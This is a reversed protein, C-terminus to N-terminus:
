MYSFAQFLWPLSAAAEDNVLTLAGLIYYSGLCKNDRDIGSTVFQELIDLTIKRIEDINEIIQLQTFHVRGFPNGLPPCIARKIEPSLPARYNWIDVLERLFKIIKNRNLSMFWNSNSYNGLSDINQFLTLTRLEISKKDSIEKNIDSIETCIPIKLVRSLRLLNRLEEIIKATIPQHNYPNKVVGDCKYILNHLSLLDCGYIFGQEDKFSFFQENPIDKLEEMTFFDSTNNCIKRSKFAPGHFINYKRRLHGRIIKQIKIISNSLYLFLYIRSILQSKNGTIKLKYSKAMMKLQDRNYNYKFMNDYEYFKLIYFFEEEIKENKEIKKGFIYKKMIKESIINLYDVDSISQSIDVEKRM